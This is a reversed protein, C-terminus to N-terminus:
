GDSFETAEAEANTKFHLVVYIWAFNLSFASAVSNEFLRLYKAM